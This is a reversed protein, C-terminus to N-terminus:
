FPLPRLDPAIWERRAEVSFLRESSWYEFIWGFEGFKSDMLRALVESLSLTIDHGSRAARLSAITITHHYGESDTNPTGHAENLRKIVERMGDPEALEPRHRVCWLALAFHAEHTWEKKPLSTALVRTALDAIAGDTTLDTM